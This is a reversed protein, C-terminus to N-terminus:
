HFYIFCAASEQHIPIMLHHPCADPQHRHFLMMETCLVEQHTMNIRLVDVVMAVAQVEAVGECQRALDERVTDVVALVEAATLVKVATM